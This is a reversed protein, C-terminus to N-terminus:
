WPVEDENVGSNVEVPYEKAPAQGSPKWTDQKLSFLTGKNTDRQWAGIKIIDSAKADEALMIQGTFDPSKPNTKKHNTFLVGIGFDAKHQNEAM